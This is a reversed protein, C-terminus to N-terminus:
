RRRRKRSGPPGGWARHRYLLRINTTAARITSFTEPSLQSLKTCVRIRRGQVHTAGEKRRFRHLGVGVMGRRIRNAIAPHPLDGHQLAQVGDRGRPGDLRAHSIEGSPHHKVRRSRGREEPFLRPPVQMARSHLHRRLIFGGLDLVVGVRQGPNVLAVTAMGEHDVVAGYVAEGRVEAITGSVPWPSM